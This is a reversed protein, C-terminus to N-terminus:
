YVTLVEEHEEEVATGIAELEPAPSVNDATFQNGLATDVTNKDLANLTEILADAAEHDAVTFDAEVTSDHDNVATYILAINAEEVGSVSALYEHISHEATNYSTSDM